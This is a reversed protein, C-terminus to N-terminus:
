LIADGEPDRIIVKDLHSLVVEEGWGEEKKGFPVGHRFVSEWTNPGLFTLGPRGYVGSQAQAGRM